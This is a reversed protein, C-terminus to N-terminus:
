GPQLPHPEMAEAWCQPTGMDRLTWTMHTGKNQLCFPAVAWSTQVTRRGELQACGSSDSIELGRGWAEAPCLEEPPWGALRGLKPCRATRWWSSETEGWSVALTHFSQCYGTGPLRITRLHSKPRPSQLYPDRRSAQPVFPGPGQPSVGARALFRAPPCLACSWSHLAIWACLQQRTSHRDQVAVAPLPLQQSTARSGTHHPGTNVTM